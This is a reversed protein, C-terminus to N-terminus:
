KPCLTCNRDAINDCTGTSYNCCPPCYDNVKDNTVILFDNFGQKVIMGTPIVNFRRRDLRATTTILATMCCM